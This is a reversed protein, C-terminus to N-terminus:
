GSETSMALKDGAAAAAATAEGAGGCTRAATV